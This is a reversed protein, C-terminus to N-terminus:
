QLAKELAGILDEKAEIGASIRVLRDTIGVAERAAQSMGSHSTQAPRTM